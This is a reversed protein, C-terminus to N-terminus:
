KSNQWLKYGIFGAIGLATAVTLQKILSKQNVSLLVNPKKNIAKQIYLPLEEFYKLLEPSKLDVKSEKRCNFIANLVLAQELTLDHGLYKHLANITSFDYLYYGDIDGFSGEIAGFHQGDASFKNSVPVHWWTSKLFQHILSLNKTEYFKVMSDDTTVCFLTTSPHFSVERIWSARPLDIRESLQANELDYLYLQLQPHGTNDSTAIVLYKEDETLHMPWAAINNFPITKLTFNDLAWFTIVNFYASILINHKPSLLPVAGGRQKLTTILKFQDSEDMQLVYIESRLEYIESNMFQYFYLNQTPHCVMLYRDVLTALNQINPYMNALLNVLSAKRVPTWEFQRKAHPDVFLNKHQEFNSPKRTKMGDIICQKYLEKIHITPAIKYAIIDKLPKPLQLIINNQKLVEKVDLETIKKALVELCIDLLHPVDLFNFYNAFKCLDELSFRGIKDKYDNKANIEATAEITLEDPFATLQAHLKSDTMLELIQKFDKSPIENLYIENTPCDELLNKITESQKLTALPEDSLKIVKSDACHIAISSNESKNNPLPQEMASLFSTFALTIALFIRLTVSLRKYFQM